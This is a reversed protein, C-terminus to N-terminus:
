KHTQLYLAQDSFRGIGVEKGRGHELGCFMQDFFIESLTVLMYNFSFPNSPLGLWFSLSHTHLLIWSVLFCCQWANPAYLFWLHSWFVRAVGLLYLLFIGTVSVTFDTQLMNHTPERYETSTTSATFYQYLTCVDWLHTKTLVQNKIITSKM